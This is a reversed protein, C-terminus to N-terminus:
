GITANVDRITVGPSREPMRVVFVLENREKDSHGQRARSRPGLILRCAELPHVCDWKHAPHALENAGLFPRLSFRTAHPEAGVEALTQIVGM